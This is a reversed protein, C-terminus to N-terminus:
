RERLLQRRARQYTTETIKGARREEELDALARLQEPTLQDLGVANQQQSSLEDKPVPISDLVERRKKEGKTSGSLRFAKRFVDNMWDIELDQVGAFYIPEGTVVRFDMDKRNRGPEPLRDDPMSQPIRWDVRRLLLYLHGEKVHALFSTMYKKHFVGMRREKRISKIGVEENPSAEALGKALAEATRPVIEPHFAPQRITGGKDSQVEVEVANLINILRPVSIITPHEYDQEVVTFVEVERVLDMEMLNGKLVSERLTRPACGTLTSLLFALAFLALWSRTLLARTVDPGAAPRRTSPGEASLRQREVVCRMSATDMLYPYGSILGAM